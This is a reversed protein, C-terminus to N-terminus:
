LDQCSIVVNYIRHRIHISVACIHVCAGCGILLVIVSLFFVVSDLLVFCIINEM